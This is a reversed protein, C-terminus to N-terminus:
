MTIFIMIIISSFLHSVMITGIPPAETHEVGVCGLMDIKHLLKDEKAEKLCSRLKEITAEDGNKQRWRTLFERKQQGYNCHCDRAIEKVESQSLSFYCAFEEWRDIIKAIEAIHIDSCKDNLAAM